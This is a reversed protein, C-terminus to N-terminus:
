MMAKSWGFRPPLFCSWSLKQLASFVQTVSVPMKSTIIGLMTNELFVMVNKLSYDFNYVFYSCLLLILADLRKEDKTADCWIIKEGVVYILHLDFLHSGSLLIIPLVDERIVVDINDDGLLFFTYIFPMLEHIITINMTWLM